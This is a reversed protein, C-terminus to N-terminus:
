CLSLEPQVRGRLQSLFESPVSCPSHKPQFFAIVFYERGNQLKRDLVRCVQGPGLQPRLVAALSEIAPRTRIRRPEPAGLPSSAIPPLLPTRPSVGNLEPLDTFPRPVISVTPTAAV